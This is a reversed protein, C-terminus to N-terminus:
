LPTNLFDSYFAWLWESQDNQANEAELKLQACADQTWSMSSPLLGALALPPAFHTCNTETEANRSNQIEM